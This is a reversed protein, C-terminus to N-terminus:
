AKGARAKRLGLQRSVGGGGRQNSPYLVLKAGSGVASTAIFEVKLLRKLFKTEPPLLLLDDEFLEGVGDVAVPEVVGVCLGFLRLGRSELEEAVENGAAM